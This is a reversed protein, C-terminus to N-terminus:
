SRRRWALGLVGGLGSVLALVSSPEPICPVVGDLARINGDGTGTSSPVAINKITIEFSGKDVVFCGKSFRADAWADDGWLGLSLDPVVTSTTMTLVSDVYVEFIDGTVGGDTVQITAPGTTTLSFSPTAWVDPGGSWGFTSWGAGVVLPDASANVAAFVAVVAVVVFLAVRSKM